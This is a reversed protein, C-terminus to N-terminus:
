RNKAVAGIIEVYQIQDNVVLNLDQIASKLFGISRKDSLELNLTRIEARINDIKKQLMVKQYNAMTAGNIMFLYFIVLVSISLIFIINLKEIEINKFAKIKIGTM